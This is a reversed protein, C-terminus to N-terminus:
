PRAMNSVDWSNHSLWMFPKLVQMSCFAPKSLASHVMIINKFKRVM